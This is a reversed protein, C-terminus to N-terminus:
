NSVSGAFDRLLIEAIAEITKRVLLPMFKKSSSRKMKIHNNEIMMSKSFHTATFLSLHEILSNKYKKLKALIHNM